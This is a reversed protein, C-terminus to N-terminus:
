AVITSDGSPCVYNGDLIAAVEVTAGKQLSVAPVFTKTEGSNIATANGEESVGNIMLKVSVGEIENSGLRQVTVNGEAVASTIGLEVKICSLKDDGSSMNKDIINKVFTAVLLFAGIAMLVLLVTVIIEQQAKKSIMKKKETGGKM